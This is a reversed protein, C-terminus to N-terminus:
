SCCVDDVGASQFMDIDPREWRHTTGISDVSTCFADMVAELSTRFVEKGLKVDGHNLFPVVVRKSSMTTMVKSECVGMEAVCAATIIRWDSFGAYGLSRIQSERMRPSTTCGIKFLRGSLSAAIYVWGSQRWRTQYTLQKPDCQFCNGSRTRLRHGSKNCPAALVLLAGSAKARLKREKASLGRGDYVQTLPVGHKDLDYLEDESFLSREM